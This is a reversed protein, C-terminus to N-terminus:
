AADADSGSADGLEEQIRQDAVDFIDQWQQDAKADVVRVHEAILLQIQDAEAAFFFIASGCAERLAALAERSPPEVVAFSWAQGFRGVPLIQYQYLTAASIGQTLTDDYEFGALPLVPLQYHSSVVKALEWSSLHGADVVAHGFSESSEYASEALEDAVDPTVAGQSVLIDRLSRRYFREYRDM